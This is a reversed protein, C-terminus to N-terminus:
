ELPAPGISEGPIYHCPILAQQRPLEATGELRDILSNAALRGVDDAPSAYATLTPDSLESMQPPTGILLMSVDDPVALGHTKFASVMGHAAWENLLIVATPRDKAALLVTAAEAGARITRPYSLATGEIAHKRTSSEFAARARELHGLDAPDQDSRGDLYAIRRHGLDHLQEVAARISFAFDVDVYPYSGVERTRGILIFPLDTTALRRVREDDLQVQMLIAGDVLGSTAVEEVVSSGASSPWFVLRYGREDAADAASLFFRLGAPGLDQHLTPYLLALIQTRRRALALGIANRRYGLEDMAAVIRSRTAPSVTKTNNIVYSVTAVSVGAQRAVDRMTAM